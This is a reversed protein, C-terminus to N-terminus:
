YSHDIKFSYFGANILTTCLYQTLEAQRHFDGPIDFTIRDGRQSLKRADVATVVGTSNEEDATSLEATIIYAM